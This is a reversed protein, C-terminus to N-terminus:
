PYGVVEPRLLRPLQAAAAPRKRQTRSLVAMGSGCDAAPTQGEALVVLLIRNLLVRLGVEWCSRRTGDTLPDSADQYQLPTQSAAPLTRLCGPLSLAVTILLLAKV